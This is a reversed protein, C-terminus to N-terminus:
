RIPWRTPWRRCKRGSTTIRSCFPTANTRLARARAAAKPPNGGAHGRDDGRAPRTYRSEFGNRRCKQNQCPTERRIHGFQIIFNKPVSRASAGFSDARRHSIADVGTDAYAEVNKKSIGGSAEILAYDWLRERAFRISFRRQNRAAGPQRADALLSLQEGSEKQLARFTEAARLAAGESRVEVEIFAAEKRFNWAREIALPAAEEERRAILALHNNKILIADGLGLRHTGGGGLHM